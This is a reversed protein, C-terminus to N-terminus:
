FRNLRDLREGRRERMWDGRADADHQRRRSQQPANLALFGLQGAHQAVAPIVCHHYRTRVLLRQRRDLASRGTACACGRHRHHPRDPLLRDRPDLEDDVGCARSAAPSRSYTREPRPPEARRQSHASLLGAAATSDHLPPIARPRPHGSDLSMAKAASFRTCCSRSSARRTSRVAGDDWRSSSRWRM